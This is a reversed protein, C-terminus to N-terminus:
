GTCVRVAAAFGAQWYKDLPNIEERTAVLTEDDALVQWAPKENGPSLWIVVL